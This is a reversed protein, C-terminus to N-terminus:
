FYPLTVVHFFIPMPSYAIKYFLQVFYEIILMYMDIRNIAPKFTQFLAANMVDIARHFRFLLYVIIQIQFNCYEDFFSPPSIPAKRWILPDGWDSQIVDTERLLPCVPVM